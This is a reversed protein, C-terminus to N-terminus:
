KPPGGKKPQKDGAPQTSLASSDGSIIRNYFWTQLNAVGEKFDPLNEKRIQEIALELCRLKLEENTIGM